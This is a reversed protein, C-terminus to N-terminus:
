TGSRRADRRKDDVLVHRPKGETHLFLLHAPVGLGRGRHNELIHADRGFVEDTLLPPTEPNGHRAEITATEVDAGTRQAASLRCDALRMGIRLLALGEALPYGIELVR